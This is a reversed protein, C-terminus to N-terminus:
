KLTGDPNTDVTVNIISGSQLGNKMIYNGWNNWHTQSVAGCYYNKGMIDNKFESSTYSETYSTGDKNFKTVDKYRDSLGFMHMIEHLGASPSSYQPDNGGMIAKYGVLTKSRETLSYIGKEKNFETKAPLVFNPVNSRVSNNQFEMVNDGTPNGNKVGEEVKKVDETTGPKFTIDMGMSWKQGKDDTYSGSFLDNNSAFYMAMALVNQGVNKGTVYITSSLTINKEGEDIGVRVDKGDPDIYKIPNNLAYCYSTVSNYKEVKPDIVMWRGIQNDYMRAGFDIWKLGGGDSFEQRQEEKGNYKLKNPTIGAAKSSIGAMTLGFPYYYSAMKM